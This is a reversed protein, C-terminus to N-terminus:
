DKKVSLCQIYQQFTGKFVIEKNYNYYHPLTEGTEPDIYPTRLTNLQDKVAAQQPTDCNVRKTIKVVPSYDQSYYAFFVIRDYEEIPFIAEVDVTLRNGFPRFLVGDKGLCSYFETPGNEEDFLKTLGAIADIEPENLEETSNFWSESGPDM